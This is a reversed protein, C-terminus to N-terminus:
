LKHIIICNGAPFPVASGNMAITNNDYNINFFTIDNSENNMSILHKNDSTVTFDKPFRGSVPLVFLQTLLGTEPDRKFAGISDDGANSCFIYNGDDSLQIAYACTTEASNHDITSVTQIREFIPQNDVDAYSYVDISSKLENIIYAFKGDYSFKVHHPAAELESRVIDALTLKGTTHDLRYIKIHDMGVDTACLYKNDRTMKVCDVHPRFNRDAISGTGKHFLEETIAGVSGDDNIRLVTIKGDHYGAVFVFKDEYDTSIYCGRMGNIDVLNLQELNGDPLIKFSAVGDDTISYLFKNNHAIAIYSANTIEVSNKPTIRGTEPDLDFIRIGENHNRTYGAGYVVYKTNSM